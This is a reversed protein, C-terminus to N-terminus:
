QGGTLDFTGEVARELPIIILFDRGCWRQSEGGSIVMDVDGRLWRESGLSTCKGRGCWRQAFCERQKGWFLVKIMFVQRIWMVESCSIRAAWRLVANHDHSNEVDVDGRLLNGVSSTRLVTAYNCLRAMDMNGRLLFSGKIDDCGHPGQHCTERGRTIRLWRVYAM